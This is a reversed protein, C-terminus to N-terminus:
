RIQPCAGFQRYDVFKKYLEYNNERHYHILRCVWCFTLNHEQVFAEVIQRRLILYQGTALSLNATQKERLGDTWDMWKGIIEKGDDIILATDSCRFSLPNYGLFPAPLWIGRYMRWFQWSPITYPFSRCAAPLVSWDRFTETLFDPAVRQVAGEFIISFADHQVKDVGKYWDVIDDLSPTLPGRCTQFLGCVELDYVTTTEYVRGEAEAVIWKDKKIKQEEWLAEVQKWIQNPINDAEPKNMKPWWIPRLNPKLRWLGLDIPCTKSAFFKADTMSIVGVMIARSLARLFASRYVESLELDITVYHDSREDGWFFLPDESPKKGIRELINHSEYAWHKIFPFLTKAEIDEALYMYIRPLFAQSRKIFLPDIEYNSPIEGSNLSSWVLNPVDNPALENMLMLSLISPRPNASLLEEVSPIEFRDYQMKARLFVLLGIAMKSELTQARMWDILHEQVAKTLKSEALLDAIASCARERVLVSPWTLRSFLFSFDEDIQTVRKEGM